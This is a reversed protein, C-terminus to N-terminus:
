IIRTQRLLSRALLRTIPQLGAMRFKLITGPVLELSSGTPVNLDTTLVAPIGGFNFKKSGSVNGGQLQISNSNNNRLDLGLYSPNAVLEQYIAYGGSNLISVTQITPNSAGTIDIGNNEGKFIRTNTVTPSSGRINLAAVRGGGHGPNHLNGAFRIEVNDLKSTSSDVYITEWQGPGGTTAAGDNNTDGGATDDLLSTFVIPKTATGIANLTGDAYLYSGNSFKLITGPALNLTTDAPVVLDGNIHVTANDFDWSRNGPISGPQLNIYSGGSTLLSLGKYSPNASVAQNIAVQRTREISIADLVPSTNSQFEFGTSDGDSLRIHKFNQLTGSRVFVSPVFGGGHGPNHQNGAYRVDAFDFNVNSSDVYLSEWHGAKPVGATPGTLDEGVSDDQVTTFTIRSTSNGIANVTSGAGLLVFQGERVKVTTGPAITLQIGSPVNFDATVEITDSWTDNATLTGSVQRAM